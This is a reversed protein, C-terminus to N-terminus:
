TLKKMMHLARQVTSSIVEWVCKGLTDHVKHLSKTHRKISSEGSFNQFLMQRIKSATTAIKRKRDDNPAHNDTTRHDTDVHVQQM